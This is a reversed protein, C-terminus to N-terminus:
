TEYILNSVDLMLKHAPLAKVKLYEFLGFLMGLVCIALGWHMLQTGMVTKGFLVFQSSLEPLKLAAESAFGIAPIVLVALFAGFIKKMM